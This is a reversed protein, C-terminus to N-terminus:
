LIKSIVIGIIGISLLILETKIMFKNKKIIFYILSIISGVAWGVSLQFINIM